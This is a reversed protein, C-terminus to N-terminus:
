VSDSKPSPAADGCDCTTTDLSHIELSGAALECSRWMMSVYTGASSRETLYTRKLKQQQQQQQQPLSQSVSPRKSNARTQARLNHQLLLEVAEHHSHRLRRGDLGVVVDVLVVLVIVLRVVVLVLLRLPFSRTETPHLLAARALRLNPSM